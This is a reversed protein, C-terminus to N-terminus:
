KSSGADMEQSYSYSCTYSKKAINIKHPNLSTGDEEVFSSDVPAVEVNSEVFSVSFKTSSVSAAFTFGYSLDDAFSTLLDVFQNADSELMCDYSSNDLMFYYDRAANICAIGDGATRSYAFNSFNSLNISTGSMIRSIEPDSCEYESGVTGHDEGDCILVGAPDVAADHGIYKTINMKFAGAKDTLEVFEIEGSVKDWCDSDNKTSGNLTLIQPGEAALTDFIEPNSQVPINAVVHATAAAVSIKALGEGALALGDLESDVATLDLGTVAIASGNFTSLDLESGSNTSLSQILQAMGVTSGGSAPTVDSIYIKHGCTISGIELDKLFFTLEEGANCSFVGNAATVVNGSAKNVTLGKVPSDIFQSSISSGPTVISGGGLGGSGGSGGKSCAVFAVPLALVVALDKFRM